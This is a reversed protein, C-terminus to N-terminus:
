KIYDRLIQPTLIQPLIAYDDSKGDYYIYLPVSARGYFQLGKAAIDDMQTIDAKYLKLQYKKVLESMTSTHLSTKRNVLCTICWDATFDIFVPQHKKLSQEVAQPTFKEWDLHRQNILLGVQTLFIWGLWVVTLILPIAMVIKFTKLWRGSKPLIRSTLNPSLALMAFPLAYGWGLSLFVAPLIYSPAFLAYGVAMGMFPATCPSAILVALLGSAFAEAKHTNFHLNGLYNLWRGSINIIDFMVLILIVFVMLMIGTFIPSQMQFGWGLYPNFRRLFWLVAALILMSSLVGLTYFLAETYRKQPPTQALTLAKLGLVPLVCPMLNLIIGGLFASLLVILLDPKGSNTLAAFYPEALVAQKRYDDYDTHKLTFTLSQPVCEDGRCAQWSIVAQPLKKKDKRVITTKYYATDAYGDYVFGDQRYTQSASFSEELVKAQPWEIRLPTGFEQEYAAFIHWDEEIAFKLLVELFGSDNYGSWADVKVQASAPKIASLLGILVVITRIFRM